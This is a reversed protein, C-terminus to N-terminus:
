WATVPTTKLSALIAAATAATPTAPAPAVRLGSAAMRRARTVTATTRTASAVTHWVLLAGLFTTAHWQLAASQPRLLMRARSWVPTTATVTWCAELTTVASAWARTPRSYELWSRRTATPWQHILPLTWTPGSWPPLTRTASTSRASSPGM